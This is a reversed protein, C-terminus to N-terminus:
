YEIYHMIQNIKGTILNRIRALFFDSCTTFLLDAIKSIQKSKQVAVTKIPMLNPSQAM